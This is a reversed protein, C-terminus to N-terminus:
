LHLGGGVNMMFYIGQPPAIYFSKGSLYLHTCTVPLRVHEFVVILFAQFSTLSQRQIKMLRRGQWQLNKQVNEIFLEMEELQPPM